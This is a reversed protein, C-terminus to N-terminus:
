KAKLLAKTKEIVKRLTAATENTEPETEYAQIIIFLMSNNQVVEDLLDRANNHEKLHTGQGARPAESKFTEPQGTRMCDYALLMEKGIYDGGRVRPNTSIYELAKRETESLVWKEPAKNPKNKDNIAQHTCKVLTALLLFPVGIAFLIYGATIYNAGLVNSFMVSGTICLLLGLVLSTIRLCKSLTTEEAKSNQPCCPLAWALSVNEM